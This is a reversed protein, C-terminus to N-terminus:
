KKGKVEVGRKGLFTVPFPKGSLIKRALTTLEEKPFPRHAGKKRKNFNYLDNDAGVDGKFKWQGKENIELEGKLRFTVGGHLYGTDHPKTVDISIKSGPRAEALAENFGSFDMPQLGPDVNEFPEVLAEGSGEMYHQLARPINLPDMEGWPRTAHQDDTEYDRPHKETNGTLEIQSLWSEGKGEGPRAPSKGKSPSPRSPKTVGKASAGPDPSAPGGDKNMLMLAPEIYNDSHGIDAVPESDEEGTPIPLHKPDGAFGKNPKPKELPLGFISRQEKKEKLKRKREAEPTDWDDPLGDVLLSGGLFGAGKKGPKAQGPPTWASDKEVVWWDPRGEGRKKKRIDRRTWPNMTETKM